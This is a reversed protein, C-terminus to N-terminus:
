LSSRSCHHAVTVTLLQETPSTGRLHPPLDKSLSVIKRIGPPSNKMARKQDLTQMDSHLTFVQYRVCTVGGDVFVRRMIHQQTISHEVCDVSRMAWVGVVDM